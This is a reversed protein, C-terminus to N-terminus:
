PFISLGSHRALRRFDADRTILPVRHDICSQAILVDALRAKLGRALMGARLMGARRWYGDAVSLMPIDRLVPELAKGAKPDSLLESLVVPPLVLRRAALADELLAVDEGKSGSLYAILSSTDAAIM